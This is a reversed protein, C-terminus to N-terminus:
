KIYLSISLFYYLFFPLTQVSKQARSFSTITNQLGLTNIRRKNFYRRESVHMYVSQRDPFGAVVPSFTLLLADFIRIAENDSCIM